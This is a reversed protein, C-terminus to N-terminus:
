NQIFYVRHDRQDSDWKMMKTVMENETTSFDTARWNIPKLHADLDTFFHLRYKLILKSGIAIKLRRLRNVDPLWFMILGNDGETSGPLWAGELKALIADQFGTKGRIYVTVWCM